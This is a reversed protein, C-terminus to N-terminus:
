ALYEYVDENAELYKGIRKPSYMEALLEAHLSEKRAKMHAYNYGRDKFSFNILRDGQERTYGLEAGSKAGYKRLLQQLYQAEFLSGFSSGLAVNIDIEDLLTPASNFCPHNAVLANDGFGNNPDHMCYYSETAIANVDICNSIIYKLFPKIQTYGLGLAFPNIIFCEPQCFYPHSLDIGQAILDKLADLDCRNCADYVSDYLDTYLDTPTIINEILDVDNNMIAQKLLAGYTPRTQIM